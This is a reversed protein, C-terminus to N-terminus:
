KTGPFILPEIAAEPIPEFPRWGAKQEPTGESPQKQNTITEKNYAAIPLGKRLAFVPYCYSPTDQPYLESLFRGPNPASPTREEIMLCAYFGGAGNEILIEVPYKQDVLVHFWKGPSYGASSHRKDSPSDTNKFAFASMNNLPSAGAGFVNENNFRVLLCTQNTVGRFRYDGTKPAKVFGKYHILFHAPKVENEVGFAKLAENSATAPIFFQYAILPDKAQYYRKLVSEDWKNNIFENIVLAHNQVSETLLDARKGRTSKDAYYIAGYESWYKYHNPKVDDLLHPDKFLGDDKINTPKRDKTQKLDYLHGVLGFNSTTGKFGFATMGTLPMAAMGASAGSGLDGAGLGGAMSSMVDPSSLSSMGMSPLAISANSATSTIRRSVAPAAAETKKSVKVKHEVVGAASPPPATFKRKEKRSEVVKVVLVTAGGLLLVHLLISLVFFSGNWAM